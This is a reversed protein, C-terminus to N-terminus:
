LRFLFLNIEESKDTSYRRFGAPLLPLSRPCWAPSALSVCAPSSGLVAPCGPSVVVSALAGVQVGSCGPPAFFDCLGNLNLCLNVKLM